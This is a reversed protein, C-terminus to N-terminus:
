DDNWQIGLLRDFLRTRWVAIQAVSWLLTMLVISINLSDPLPALDFYERIQPTALTFAYILILLLAVITTLWSSGHYNEDNDAMWRVPPKAFVMLLVGALVFFSTLGSQAFTLRTLAQIQEASLNGYDQGANQGFRIVADQPLQAQILNQEISFYVGIYILLGFLFITFSAPLTFQFINKLMSGRQRGATAVMSLILPPVGRAFVSLITSQLTTFPFGINLFGIGIILLLLAFVTSMFLKLIDQISNVIRQGETFALPMVEFSDGVLIMAAVSRSATSGSEMAIGLNAKKLSLVDNVGDGIMAVYEGQSRLADVLMEKQQPTIRGFVTAEMATQSFDAQSMHALDIGSVAKLDGPLGAQRALSAVTQPNDGSIVKLKVGNDTFASITEQLHPRLEDRFSVIGLLTLPPLVPEDNADHLTKVEPNRAFVLVRLGNSSWKELQQIANKDVNILNGQLMELAGLVYVGGAPAEQNPVPDDFVVASWKRASSFPVEDKINRTTGPLGHVIAESTKNVASASAAFDALLNELRTREIGIPYVDHYQIRNTTLTGTKDTCLVTTNSLSEIANIQQVLGGKQGIRVAGWSYNLTILMLLGASVSGTIVAMIQLWLEVPLELVFLALVALISYFIVILLIVRLLLNVDRQLPTKELNFKRANKTLNNAFSNEGVASAEVKATGAMCFTGSLVKDNRTKTALDSEGTLASEDIEMRGDDLIVGDVPVQDGPRIVLIDGLVLEAPDVEQEQGDRMVTVKSRALLAIQDLKRKASIEQIIGVIANVFLLMVTVFASRNDGVLVMGFGIAYLVINVPNFVNKIFIDVVSRSSVLKVDNGQGSQHRSQVQDSTLGTIETM